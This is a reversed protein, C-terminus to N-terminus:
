LIREEVSVHAHCAVMDVLYGTQGALVHRREERDKTGVTGPKDSAGRQNIERGSQSNTAGCARERADSVRSM